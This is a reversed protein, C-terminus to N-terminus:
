RRWAADVRYSTQSGGKTDAVFNSLRLHYDGAEPIAVDFSGVVNDPMVLPPPDWQKLLTEQAIVRSRCRISLALSNGYYDAVYGYNV